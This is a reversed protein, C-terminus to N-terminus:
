ILDAHAPSEWKHTARLRLQLLQPTAIPHSLAPTLVVNVLAITAGVIIEGFAQAIMAILKTVLLKAVIKVNQFHVIETETFEIETKM